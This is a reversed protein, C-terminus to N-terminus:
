RIAPAARDWTVPQTGRLFRAVGVLAAYNMLCFASPAALCRGVASRGRLLFGGLAAAYFTVQAVLALRFGANSAALSCTAAFLGALLFPGLVRLFKHSLAQLWVRNTGIRWLWRERELLQLTGSTTRVKRVFEAGPTDSTRDFAKAKAEFVVRYGRRVARMPILVDDLLTDAPIAEFLDRRIAYIAGTVGVTSDFRSESRRILKEYSWYASVGDGIGHERGTTLHLEGSVAGIAPDAFNEVLAVIAGRDYLQRADSLVVIEGRCKPVTDNLVSPKGRRTAFEIVTVRDSGSARAVTVTGDTSGDSAVVIDLLDAPYDLSLCNALKAGITAAEDHAAILLTVRPRIPARRVPRPRLAALAAIFGPYGVYVYVLLLLCIWFTLEAIM